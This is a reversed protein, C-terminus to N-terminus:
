EDQTVLLVLLLLVGAGCWWWLSGIVYTQVTWEGCSRRGKSLRDFTIIINRFLSTTCPFSTPFTYNFQINLIKYLKQFILM